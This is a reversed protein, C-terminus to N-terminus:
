GSGSGALLLILSVAVFAAYVAIGILLWKKWNRRLTTM